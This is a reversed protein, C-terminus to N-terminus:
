PAPLTEGIESTTGDLSIRYGTPSGRPTAYLDGARAEEGLPLQRVALPQGHGTLELLARAQAHTIEISASM